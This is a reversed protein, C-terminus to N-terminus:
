PRCLELERRLKDLRGLWEWFHPAQEYSIKELEGAVKEGAPPYVYCVNCSAPACSSLCIMVAPM